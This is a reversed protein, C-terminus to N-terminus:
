FSTHAIYTALSLALFGAKNVLSAHAMVDTMSDTLRLKNALVNELDNKPLHHYSLTKTWDFQNGSHGILSCSFNKGQISSYMITM